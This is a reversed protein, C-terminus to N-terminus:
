ADLGEFYVLLVTRRYPEELAFVANVVKRQLEARELTEVASPLQEKSAARMERRKRRVGARYRSVAQNRLVRALWARLGGAPPRRAELAALLTEQALDEAENGDRVLNLALARVWHLEQLLREPTPPLSSDTMDAEIVHSSGTRGGM